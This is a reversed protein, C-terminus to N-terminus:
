IYFFFIIIICFLNAFIVDPVETVIAVTFSKLGKFALTTYVM